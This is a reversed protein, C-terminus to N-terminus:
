ERSVKLVLVSGCVACADGVSLGGVAQIDSGCRPCSPILLDEVDEYRCWEGGADTIMEPRLCDDRARNRDLLRYRKLKSM